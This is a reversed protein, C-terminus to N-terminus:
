PQGGNKREYAAIAAYAVKFTWDDAGDIDLAACIEEDTLPQRKVPQPAEPAAALMATWTERNSDDLWRKGEPVVCMGAADLMAQTPEVPVLAYGEPVAAAPPAQTNAALPMLAAMVADAKRLYRLSSAIREPTADYLASELPSFDTM